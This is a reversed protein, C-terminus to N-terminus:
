KIVLTDMVVYRTELHTIYTIPLVRKYRFTKEWLQEYYKKDFAKRFNEGFRERSGELVAYDVKATDNTAQVVLIAAQNLNRGTIRPDYMPPRAPPVYNKGTEALYKHTGMVGALLGHQRSWPYSVTFAMALEEAKDIFKEKQEYTPKGTVRTFPRALVADRTQQRVSKYDM